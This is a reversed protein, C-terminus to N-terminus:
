MKATMRMCAAKRRLFAKRWRCGFSALAAALAARCCDASAAAFGAGDASPLGAAGADPGLVAGQPLRVGGTLGLVSGEGEKRGM